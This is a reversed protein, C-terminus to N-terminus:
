GRSGRRGCRYCPAGVQLTGICVQRQCSFEKDTLLVKAEGHDLIFAVTAADLRTNITNLVAGAMAVESTPKM